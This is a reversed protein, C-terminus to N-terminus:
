DSSKLRGVIRGSLYRVGWSFPLYVAMLVFLWPSIRGQPDIYKAIGLTGAIIAVQCIIDFLSFRM